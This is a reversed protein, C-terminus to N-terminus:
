RVPMEPPGRDSSSEFPSEDEPFQDFNIRRARKITPEVLSSLQAPTLCSQSRATAVLAKFSALKAPIGAKVGNAATQRQAAVQLASPVTRRSLGFTLDVFNARNGWYSSSDSSIASASTQIRQVLSACNGVAQANVPAARIVMVLVVFLLTSAKM